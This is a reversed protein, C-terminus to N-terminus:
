LEKKWVEAQNVLQPFFAEFVHDFTSQHRNYLDVARHMNSPFPTRSDMGEFVKKLTKLDAYGSLINREVMYHFFRQSRAPMLALHEALLQLCQREFEPLLQASYAPWNKALIHDFIVDLAVGSYKGLAPYMVKKLEKVGANEDTFTDIKRHLLVGSAIDQHLRDYQRGKVSDAIFNGVTLM